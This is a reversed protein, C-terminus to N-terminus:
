ATCDDQRALPKWRVAFLTKVTQALEPSLRLEAGHQSCPPRHGLSVVALGPLGVVLPM